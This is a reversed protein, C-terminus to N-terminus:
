IMPITPSDPAPLDIVASAIVRMSGAAADIVLPWTRNSPPSRARASAPVSRRIRPPCIPMTKWSGSDDSFGTIVMPAWISSASRSCPLERRSARRRVRSSSPRTPM